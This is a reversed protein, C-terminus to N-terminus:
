FIALHNSSGLSHHGRPLLQFKLHRYLTDADDLQDAVYIVVHDLTPVPFTM